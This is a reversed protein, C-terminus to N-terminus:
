EINLSLSLSVGVGVKIGSNSPFLGSVGDTIGVFVSVGNIGSVTLTLEVGIFFFFREV